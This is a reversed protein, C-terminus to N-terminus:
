EKLPHSFKKLEDNAFQDFKRIVHHECLNGIASHDGKSQLESASIHATHNASRALSNVSDASQEGTRCRAMALACHELYHFSKYPTQTLRGPTECFRGVIQVNSTSRQANSTKEGTLISMTVKNGSIQRVGNLSLM